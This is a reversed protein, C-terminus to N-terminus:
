GSRSARRQLAIMAQVRSSVGLTKYVAHAHQKVTSESIGLDRAIERYSLGNALLRMVGSQRDTLSPLQPLANKQSLDAKPVTISEPPIYRGGSAILQLAAVM